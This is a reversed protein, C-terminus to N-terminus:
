IITEEGVGNTYDPNDFDYLKIEDYWHKVPLKGDGDCAQFIM